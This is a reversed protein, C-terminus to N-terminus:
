ARRGHQRAYHDSIARARRTQMGIVVGALLVVACFILYRDPGVALDPRTWISDAILVLYAALALSTTFVVLSVRQWFGSCAILLPFVALLPSKVGDAVLLLLTLMVCDISSWAWRIPAASRRASQLSSQLADAIVSLIMWVGLLLAVSHHFSETVVPSGYTNFLTIGYFAAIGIMRTALPAHGRVWRRARTLGAPPTAEIPEGTLWRDLDDALDTATAYRQSPDRNLCKVVITQFAVPIKTDLSRPLAPERELVEVLAQAPSSASFPSAGTSAEYLTTGLSYIDSKVTAASSGKQVIEPAIYRPTGVIPGESDSDRGRGGRMEALGFDTVFPEGAADIVINAPKLDLHLIQREHLHHVARAVKALIKAADRLPLRDDSLMSSLTRGSVFEMAIFHQNNHIGTEFVSVVNAHNVSAAAKAESEFRGVSDRSAVLPSLIMKIAVIRDLQLDRARYVVGMGGRGVEELVEYRDMRFPEFVTDEVIGTAPLTPPTDMM